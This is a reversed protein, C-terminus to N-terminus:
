TPETSHFYDEIAKRVRSRARHLLVRQNADSIALASCTEDARLGEIDRFVLVERQMPPLRAVARLVMWRTEGALLEQEPTPWDTPGTAWHHPWPDADPRFRGGAFLPRPDDLAAGAPAYRGEARSRSRALNIVIGLLWTRLSSRGQYQGLERLLVLWAEQVVEEAVARAPVRILAMRLMAPGWADVLREFTAEDGERLARVLMADSDPL